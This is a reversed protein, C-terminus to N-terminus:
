RGRGKDQDNGRDNGPNGNRKGRDGDQRNDKRADHRQQYHPVYEREYWNNQVFYVREGCANYARCHKRWNRAHGPPVNMYIPPRNLASRYMVRPTPYILQPAPYGSIDIPGYFGPQGINVSVGVDVALAPLTAAALAAAFFLRKM